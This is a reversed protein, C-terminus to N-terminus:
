KVIGTTSLEFLNSPTTVNSSTICIKLSSVVSSICRKPPTSSPSFTSPDNFSETFLLNGQSITFKTVAIKAAATTPINSPVIWATTDKAVNMGITVPIPPFAPVWVSVIMTLPNAKPSSLKLFIFFTNKLSIPTPTTVPTTIPNMIPTNPYIQSPFKM